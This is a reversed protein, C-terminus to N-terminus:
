LYSSIDPNKIKSHVTGKSQIQTLYILYYDTVAKQVVKGGRNGEM